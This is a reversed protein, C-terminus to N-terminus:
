SVINLGQRVTETPAAAEVRKGVLRGKSNMNRMEVPLVDKGLGQQEATKWANGLKEMLRYVTQLPQVKKERVANMMEKLLYSYIRYFGCATNEDIDMNLSNRLERVINQARITKEVFLVKDNAKFASQAQSLFKLCADFLIVIRGIPSATEIKRRLYEQHANAPISM